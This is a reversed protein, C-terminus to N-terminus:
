RFLRSRNMGDTEDYFRRFAEVGLLLNMHHLRQNLLLDIGDGDSWDIRSGKNWDYVFRNM